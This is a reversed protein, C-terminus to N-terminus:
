YSEVVLSKYGDDVIFTSKLDNIGIGDSSDPWIVEDLLHRRRGESDSGM